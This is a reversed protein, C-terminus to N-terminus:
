RTGRDRTPLSERIAVITEDIDSATHATSVFMVENQSPPLLIKRDRMAHYYRAYAAKDAARADDYNRNPPGARFKFDVVSGHQVVAYPLDRDAFIARIGDALRRGLADMQPYYEPRAELLDLVRHAMAVGFPNGGHTGGTFTSGLPALVDMIEARGGFSAIPFGGGMVKGLTTMDPRVGVRAQAGGLGLRLWTIVEDFILVAGLRDCRERLGALFGEVPTVYGM